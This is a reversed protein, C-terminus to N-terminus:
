VVANGGITETHLVRWTYEVPVGSANGQREGTFLAQSVEMM